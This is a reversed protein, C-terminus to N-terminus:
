LKNQKNLKLFILTLSVTGKEGPPLAYYVLIFGALLKLQEDEQSHSHIVVELHSGRYGLSRHIQKPLAALTQNNATWATLEENRAACNIGVM